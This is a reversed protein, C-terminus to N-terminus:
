SASRVPNGNGTLMEKGAPSRDPNNVCVAVVSFTENHAGIFYQSRKQFQFRATRAECRITKILLRSKKLVAGRSVPDSEPLPTKGARSARACARSCTQSLRQLSLFGFMFALSLESAWAFCFSMMKITIAPNAADCAKPCFSP